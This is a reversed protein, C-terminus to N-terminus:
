IQLPRPIRPAPPPPTLDLPNGAVFAGGTEFPGAGTIIQYVETVRDHVLSSDPTESPIRRLIVITEKYAGADVTKIPKDYTTKTPPMLRLAADIEDTTVYTATTANTAPKAFLPLTLGSFLIPTAAVALAAQLYLGTMLRSRRKRM